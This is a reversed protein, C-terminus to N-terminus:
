YKPNEWESAFQIACNKDKQTVYMEGNEYSRDMEYSMYGM